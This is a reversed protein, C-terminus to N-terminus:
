CISQAASPLTGVTVRIQDENYAVPIAAVPLAALRRLTFVVRSPLVDAVPTRRGNVIRKWRLLSQGDEGRIPETQSRNTPDRNTEARRNTM